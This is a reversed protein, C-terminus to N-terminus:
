ETLFYVEVLTCNGHPGMAGLEFQSLTGPLLIGDPVTFSDSGPPLKVTLGDSEGQELNVVYGEVSEDPMWSLTLGSVPVSRAGEYPYYIEPALPLEHSLYARGLALAGDVTRGRIDYIGEPYDAFIEPATAEQMEVSFGSLAHNTARHARMEFIPENDPNRIQIYKLEVESEAEMRLVAENATATFEITMLEEKLLHVPNYREQQTAYSALALASLALISKTM